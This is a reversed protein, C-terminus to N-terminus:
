HIFLKQLWSMNAKSKIHECCIRDFEKIDTIMNYCNEGLVSEVLSSFHNRLNEYQSIINKNDEYFKKYFKFERHEGNDIDETM